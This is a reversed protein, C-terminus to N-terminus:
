DDGASERILVPLGAAAMKVPDAVQRSTRLTVPKLLVAALV